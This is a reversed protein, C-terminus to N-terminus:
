NQASSELRERKWVGFVLIENLRNGLLSAQGSQEMAILETKGLLGSNGSFPKVIWSGTDCGGGDVATESYRSNRGRM